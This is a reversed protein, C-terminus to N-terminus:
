AEPWILLQKMLFKEIDSAGYGKISNTIRLQKVWIVKLEKIVKGKNGTANIKTYVNLIKFFVKEELITAL